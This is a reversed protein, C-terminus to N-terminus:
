GKNLYNEEFFNYYSDLDQSQFYQTFNKKSIVFTKYSVNTTNLLEGQQNNVKHFYDLAKNGNKFTKVLLIQNQPNLLMQTVKLKDLKNNSSNYDSFNNLAKSIKDTYQSFAVVFYHNTELNFKYPGDNDKKKDKAAKKTEKDIYKLIEQAKDKVPDEPYNKVIDRLALVYESKEQTHGIVFANLLEFKPKLSNKEFKKDADTIRSNVKDYDGKEYYTYTKEYYEKLEKDVVQLEGALEPNEILKTYIGEKDNKLVYDKHKNAQATNGEKQHLLYLIYHSQLAYECKPYRDLLTNFAEIAKPPNQLKDKYINGIEFLAFAIKENSVEMKQDDLPLNALLVDRNLNGSEILNIYNETEEDASATNNSFGTRNRRWDDQLPRNGWRSRFENYGVSKAADNYFYWASGGTSSSANSPTAPTLFDSGEEDALENQRKRAEEELHEIIEDILLNRKGAPMMAIRQLSDETEVTNYQTALDALIDKRAIINERNPYEAPLYAATSDYYYSAKLYEKQEFFLEAIKLFVLAKQEQNVTSNEAAKELLEMAQAVDGNALDIEAMAFYIQDQYDENKEDKLMKELYRKAQEGSYEGALMKTTALNVRANFEMDYKVPKSKIVKKFSNYAQQYDQNQLSIQAQLFHLRARKKKGKTAKITQSLAAYAKNSDGQLLHYHAYLGYLQSRFKKPFVKEKRAVELANLAKDYNEQAINARAIWLLSEYKAPRHGIRGFLGNKYSAGAEEFVFDEEEDPEDPLELKPELDEIPEEVVEEPTAEEPTEETEELAEEAAKAAEEEAKAAEDAARRAKEEKIRAKEKEMYKKRKAPSMKKLKKQMKKKREQEKKRKANQKAREKAKKENEKKRTKSAKEREKVKRKRELEKKQKEIVREKLIEKAKDTDVSKGGVNARGRATATPLQREKLGRERRIKDARRIGRSFQKNVYELNQLAEEYDGKFFYAKGMLLYCDDVWKSNPHVKIDVSAKQIAVDMQSHVSSAENGGDFTFIDLLEQYNDKHSQDLSQLSEQIILNAHFFGNYRATMDQYANRLATSQGSSASTYKSKKSKSSKEKKTTRYVSRNQQAEITQAFFFLLFLSIFIKTYRAVKKIKQNIKIYEKKPNKLTIQRYYENIFDM